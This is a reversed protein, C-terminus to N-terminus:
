CSLNSMTNKDVNETDIYFTDQMDRAPHAPTFGLAEFNFFDNEIEPSSDSGTIAEYGIEEFISTALDMTLALPHRTGPKRLFDPNGDLSIQYTNGIDESEILDNMEKNELREKADDIAKEVVGKAENVVEGLKPKDENALKKMQKM